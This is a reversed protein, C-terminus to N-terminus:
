GRGLRSVPSPAESSLCSLTQLPCSGSTVSSGQLFLVPDASAPSPVAPQSAGALHAPASGPPPYPGVREPASPTRQLLAGTRHSLNGGPLVPRCHHGSDRQPAPRGRFWAPESNPGACWLPRGKERRSVGRLAEVEAKQEVARKNQTLFPPGTLICEPLKSVALCPQRVSHGDAPGLLCTCLANSPVPPQGQAERVRM